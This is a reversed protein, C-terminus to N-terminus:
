SQGSILHQPEHFVNQDWGRFSLVAWIHIIVLVGGEWLQEEIDNVHLTLTHTHTLTHVYKYLTITYLTDESIWVGKTSQSLIKNLYTFHESLHFLM